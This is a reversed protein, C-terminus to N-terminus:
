SNEAPNGKPREEESRAHLKEGLLKVPAIGSLAIEEKTGTTLDAEPPTVPSSTTFQVSSDDGTSDQSTAYPSLPSLLSPDLRNMLCESTPTKVTLSTPRQSVSSARRERLTKTFRQTARTFATERIGGWRVRHVGLTCQEFIDNLKRGFTILNCEPPKEGFHFHLTMAYGKAENIPCGESTTRDIKKDQLIPHLMIRGAPSKNQVRDSMVPHQDKPFDPADTTIKKLLEATTFRGKKKERVLTTLAYILARTFSNPGPVPTTGNAQSAALYEFLRNETLQIGNICDFIELVDAEAPQLLEEPKNWVLRNRHRQNTDRLDNPSIKGKLELIGFSEGPSGHGAYYVILLTNPGDHKDVFDAIKANVKIQLKQKSNGNLQVRTAHYGFDNVLVSELDDVEETIGMDSDLWYLLLVEVKDYQSATQYRGEAMVNAWMVQHRSAEQEQVSDYGVTEQEDMGVTLSLEASLGPLHDTNIQPLNIGTLLVETPKEKFLSRIWYKIAVSSLRAIILILVLLGIYFVSNDRCAKSELCGFVDVWVTKKWLLMETPQTM